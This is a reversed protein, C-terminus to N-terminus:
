QIVAKGTYGPKSKLYNITEKNVSDAPWVIYDFPLM